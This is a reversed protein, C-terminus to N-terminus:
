TRGRSRAWSENKRWTVNIALWFWPFRCPLLCSCLDMLLTMSLSSQAATATLSLLPFHVMFFAGHFICRPFHLGIFLLLCHHLPMQGEATGAVATARWSTGFLFWLLHGLGAQVPSPAGQPTGAWPHAELVRGVWVLRNNWSEWHHQSAVSTHSSSLSVFFLVFHRCFVSKFSHKWMAVFFCAAQFCGEM